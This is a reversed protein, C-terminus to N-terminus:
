EILEAEGFISVKVKITQNVKLNIWVDYDLSINQEADKSNIGIIYYKQSKKSIREDDELVIEAWYPNQNLGDTSISRDYLWKDIEYYYKTAYVPEERYVAEEYIETDYYTEYVPRQDIIEEFYGNGLDRYGVVYSEYYSIREKAVQRTKTEYHDIVQEYRRIERQSYQLRGSSPLVWDSEQFTRLEEVSISRSWEFGNVTGVVEKPTLLFILGTIIALLAICIIGYKLFNINFLSKKSIPKECLSSSKNLPNTKESVNNPHINTVSTDSVTAGYTDGMQEHFMGEKKARNQFYNMESDSKSAGCNHCINQNDSVLAGCYSCL